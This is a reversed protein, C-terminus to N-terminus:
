AGYSKAANRVPSHAAQGDTGSTGFDSRSDFTIPAERIDSENQIKEKEKKAQAQKADLERAAIVAVQNSINSFQEFTPSFQDLFSMSHRIKDREFKLLHIQIEIEGLKQALQAFESQIQSKMTM